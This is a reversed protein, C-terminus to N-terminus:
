VTMVETTLKQYATSVKCKPAYLYISIGEASTEAARISLPIEIDFVKIRHGYTARILDGMEKAYNTRSDVMTLLIGEISLNQNLHKNVKSITMLLQELGKVSLYSAQVPILVTDSCTLANITLMGLSPMCDLLIYDYNQSISDIFQKLIRERNMTNILTVEVGALSINAPILHVGEQQKLIKDLEVVRDDIVSEYIDALTYDLNDPQPFGLSITLSGQPDTDILLVKKGQRVLGVGLNLTTTTKGTGGKQNVVSIIKTKM